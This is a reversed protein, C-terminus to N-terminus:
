FSLQPQPIHNNGNGDKFWGERKWNRATAKWDKITSNGSKWDKSDYCDIFKEANTSPV